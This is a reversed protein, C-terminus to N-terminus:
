KKKTARSRTTKKTTETAELVDLAMPEPLVSVTEQLTDGLSLDPNPASGVADFSHDSESFGEPSPAFDGSVAADANFDTFEPGPADFSTEVGQAMGLNFDTPAPAAENLALSGSDANAGNIGSGNINLNITM